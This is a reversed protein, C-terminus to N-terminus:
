SVMQFMAFNVSKYSREPAPSTKRKTKKIEQYGGLAYM